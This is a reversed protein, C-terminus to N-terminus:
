IKKTTKTKKRCKFFINSFLKAKQQYQRFNYKSSKKNSDEAKGPNLNNTTQSKTSFHDSSSIDQEFSKEYSHSGANSNSVTAYDHQSSSASQTDSDNYPPEERTAGPNETFIYKFEFGNSVTFTNSDPNNQTFKKFDKQHQEFVIAQFQTELSTTSLIFGEQITYEDNIISFVEDFVGNGTLIEDADATSSSSTISHKAIM